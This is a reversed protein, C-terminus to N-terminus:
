DLLHDMAKGIVAAREAPTAAQEIGFGLLVTDRTTVAAAGFSQGRRFDGADPSGAPPGPLSWPGLGTEFGEADVTGGTTTVKTDDVFAGIGGTAPDTVYSISLEVQQGAYASLDVAAQHWGNTTDTFRNWAGTTGTNGCPNGPTLYHELWPHLALYFGAECETPVGTDTGGNLDPLTTWNDQGVTHAEVIVNDYGPETNISLQFELKPAQAATVGTLDVTRSLRMYSNDVHPGSIYWAGEVPDFPGGQGRFEGGAASRFQPFQDPPLIDSTVTFNGAEDVPNSPAGGFATEVGALRGAGAFGDPDARPARNYAGLYYQHFDDALLLCDSFPDVTVVCQQDPHGDLAYWIGGVASAFVGFYGATEATELLKGGENLYDRIAITLFHEREAASADEVENGFVETLFDEPDQTLRNDGQYWVVAPFHSLVGLHHPVGEADTDWVRSGLNNAGLAAVYTQAYKPATAGSPTPGPNVGKYDENAIVLVKANGKSRVTYTFHESSVTRHGRKGQFWVEVRDGADAGTVKGRYEAFYLDNEDGYREGGRWESVSTTRARGGNIRFRMAKARLSRRIVSAVPQTSGYSVGFKDVSFDPVTRGVPSVPNDPNHVAKAAAIAFPVNKAYEDQILGEDDPFVFGTPDCDAPDWEDNPDIASVTQCTSMEPTIALTGFANTLHGDTEGNTTYLEAGIDPDYGPVAAHEDDGLFAEFIVDDPTPTAQQWGVGYLLLEAASHWNVAYKFDSRNMLNLFARTEPESAPAAGRYTLSAFDPSSGENDYGWKYPLNRNPDVGDATTIQGNGDNDRLNKRWLRQGPQFTWDYGDPNAVVLFWVETTNVINTIEANTGYSNLYHHLLRRTMEPTIWERAHQTSMYLVGPRRGDSLTRANRTVKIATIPQGQVSTGVNVVKAIGPKANAAAVIEERLGGAGGYPRFVGDQQAEVREAFTKGDVKKLQLKVGGARLKAVQAPALVAEVKVKGKAARSLAVDEHDVGAETLMPVQQTSVEGSYVDLRDPGPKPEASAPVAAVLGGALLLSALLSVTTRKM